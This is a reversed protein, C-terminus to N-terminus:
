PEGRGPNDALQVHGVTGGWRTALEVVDAGNHALHFTDLLPAVNPREVQAVLDRVGEDTTLPYTGNLGAALPEVLITGGIEAVADAPSRYAGAATTRQEALDAAEDLQGYLLNFSRCGTARAVHLLAELADDLENAREPRCAIGREGGPMDGAYVNLGTLTLGADRVATVLTDLRETGPHAEAFPWWSEVAAFGAGAAARFRQEYPLETFLLSVNASVDYGFWRMLVDQWHTSKCTMRDSLNERRHSVAHQVRARLAGVHCPRRLPASGRGAPCLHGEGVVVGAGEVDVEPDVDHAPGPGVRQAEACAPVHGEVRGLDRVVVPALVE